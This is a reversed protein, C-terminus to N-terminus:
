FTKNLKITTTRLGGFEVPFQEAITTEQGARNTFRHEMIQVAQAQDIVKNNILANLTTQVFERTKQPGGFDGEFQDLVQKVAAGGAGAQIQQTLYSTAEDKRKQELKLEQDKDWQLAMASEARKMQPFLYKNLLAPQLGSYKKLFQQRIVAAVAENVLTRLLTM